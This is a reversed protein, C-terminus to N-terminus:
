ESIIIIKEEQFKQTESHLQVTYWGKPIYLLQITVDNPGTRLFIAKEVVTTGASNVIRLYGQEETTSQFALHFSSQAPNPYLSITNFALQPQSLMYGLISDARQFNVMGFGHVSDPTSFRDGSAEIARFVQMSTASPYKQWLCSAGGSIIPAAFSTGSSQYLSDNSYSVPVGFGPALINPKIAGKATPGRSSFRAVSKDLGTAGVALVSDGDAPPIVYYWDTPPTFSGENGASNVILMGKSAALDAAKTITATNGDLTHFSYNEEERDFLSYGLSTSIIDCGVSDAREAAAIWNYEELRSERSIDESIYLAFTAHPATAVLTDEHESAICALVDTGHKGESFVTTTKNVFDYTDAIRNSNSLSTFNPSSDVKFFGNDIVAIRMNEGTFGQNHLDSLGIIQAVIGFYGYALRNEWNQTHTEANVISLSTGNPSSKKQKPLPFSEVASVFPLQKIEQLEQETINGRYVAANIWRLPYMPQANLATSVQNIYELNVNYDSFHIPINQKSRRDLSPQSLSLIPSDGKDSFHVVCFIEQASISCTLLM